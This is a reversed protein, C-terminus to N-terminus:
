CKNKNKYMLSDLHKQFEELTMKAQYDYVAYGMSCEFKYPEEGIENYRNISKQIRNVVEKLGKEDAVELIVYFEDGGFRGIFDNARISTTLFTAFRKLAKDGVDHGFRDNIEKFDDIDVMIASFTKGPTATKIKDKLYADINKRNNVGTLYDTFISKNQINFQVILISLVMGNLVLSVGYFVLQFVAALLPPAAFFLLPFIYKQEFKERNIFIFISTGLIFFFPISASIWYFDGRHYINETDIIYFWGYILNLNVLIFNFVNMFLLPYFLKRTKDEDQYVQYHAYALWISPIIPILSFLIYNGLYNLIPYLTSSRGDFRGLIDFALLIFTIIIIKNFLKKYFFDKDSQKSSQRYVIILIFMSYMNIMINSMLNMRYIDERHGKIKKIIKLNKTM